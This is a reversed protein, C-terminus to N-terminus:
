MLGLDYALWLVSYRDKLDKAYQKALNIKEEGYIGYFESIDLECRKLMKEIECSSPMERFLDKIEAQRIHRM